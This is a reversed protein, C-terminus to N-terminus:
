MVLRSHSESVERYGGLVHKKVTSSYVFTEYSSRHRFKESTDEPKWRRKEPLRETVSESAM